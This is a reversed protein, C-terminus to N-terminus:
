AASGIYADLDVKYYYVRGGVRHVRPGRGQTSMNALTKPELGLYTAANPRDMRGDPLVRVRVQEINQNETQM